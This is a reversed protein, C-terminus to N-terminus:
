QKTEGTLSLLESEIANIANVREMLQGSVELFQEAEPFHTARMCVAVSRLSSFAKTAANPVVSVHPLLGMITHWNFALWTEPTHVTENTVFHNIVKACAALRVSIDESVELMGQLQDTLEQVREQKDAENM